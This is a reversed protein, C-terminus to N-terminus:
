NASRGPASSRRTPVSHVHVLPGLRDVVCIAASKEGVAVDARNSTATAQTARGLQGAIQKILAILARASSALPHRLALDQSLSAGSSSPCPRDHQVLEARTQEAAGTFPLVM